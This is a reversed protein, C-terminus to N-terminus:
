LRPEDIHSISQARMKSQSGTSNGLAATLTGKLSAPHRDQVLDVYIQACCAPHFHMKLGLIRAREVAEDEPYAIANVGANVALVDTTVRHRGSPRMCGLAVPTRPLLLKAEAIVRAVDDPKPPESQGMATGRLPILAIIVLGSPNHKSIMRLANFEGLLRGYHLGVIVHPVFPIGSEELATLSSDYDETRVNLRYIEEITEDSGLVDILAMDVGTKALEEAVSKRIVGTHVVLKLGLEHKIRSIMPLFPELPMTGDPLCGGSILCGGCGQKALQTCVSLLKEPTTAPMMTRLVRGGCHKCGLSCENGTISISKFACPPSNYFPKEYRMFSPTYFHISKGFERYSSERAKDLLQSLCVM